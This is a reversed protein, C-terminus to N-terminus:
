TCSDRPCSVLFVEAGNDAIKGSRLGAALDGELSRYFRHVFKSVDAELSAWERIRTEHELYFKVQEEEIRNM